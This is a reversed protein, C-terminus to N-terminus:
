LRHSNEEYKFLKLVFVFKLVIIKRGFNNYNRHFKTVVIKIKGCNICTYNCTNYFDFRTPWLTSTREM